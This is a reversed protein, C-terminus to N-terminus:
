FMTRYNEGSLYVSLHFALREDKMKDAEECYRCDSESLFWGSYFEKSIKLEERVFQFGLHRLKVSGLNWGFWCVWYKCGWSEM